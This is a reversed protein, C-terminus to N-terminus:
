IYLKLTQIITNKYNDKLWIEHTADLLVYIIQNTYKSLIRNEGLVLDNHQKLIIDNKIDSNFDRFTITPLNIKEYNQKICFKTHTGRVYDFIMNIYKSNDKENKIKDIINDLTKQNDIKPIIKGKNKWALLRRRNLENTIWSGDLSIIYKIEKQYQKAFECAYYIGHSHGIVIYPPNYLNKNMENYLKIIFKDLSLDDYDINDIPEYMQKMIIYESYYNVNVYPIEPIYVKDIKELQKIFDNKNYKENQYIFNIVKKSSGLGHFFIITM